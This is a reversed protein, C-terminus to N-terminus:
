DSLQTAGRQLQCVYSYCKQLTWGTQLKVKEWDTDLKCLMEEQNHVVFWWLTKSGALKKFKRKIQLNRNIQLYNGASCCFQINEAYGLDEKAQVKLWLRVVQAIGPLIIPPLLVGMCLLPRPVHQDGPFKSM